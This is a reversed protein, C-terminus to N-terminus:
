IFIYLSLKITVYRKYLIMIKKMKYMKVKKHKQKATLSQSKKIPWHVRSLEGILVWDYRIM